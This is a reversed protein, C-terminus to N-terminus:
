FLLIKFFCEMIEDVQTLHTMKHILLHASYDTISINITSSYVLSKHSTMTNDPCSMFLNNTPWKEHQAKIIIKVKTTITIHRQTYAHTQSAKNNLMIARPSFEANMEYKNHLQVVDLVLIVELGVIYSKSFWTLRYRLISLKSRVNETYKLGLNLLFAWQKKHFDFNM